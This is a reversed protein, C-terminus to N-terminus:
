ATGNTQAPEYTWEMVCHCRPDHTARYQGQKFSTFKLEPIAENAIRKFEGLTRVKGKMLAYMTNDLRRHAMDAYIPAVGIEPMVYEIVIIKAGPKLAPKLASYISRARGDSHNLFVQRFLYADATTPQPDFFSHAQFSIKDKPFNPNKGVVDNANDVVKPLDQVICTVTPETQVIANCVSGFSGGCDVLTKGKLQTWDYGAKIAGDGHASAQARMYGGFKKGEAPNTELYQYLPASRANSFGCLGENTDTGDKICVKGLNFSSEPLHDLMVEMGGAMLPDLHWIASNRSHTLEGNETEALFGSCVIANRALHKLRDEDLNIKKALDAYSVSGGQPINHPVKLQCLAQIVGTEASKIKDAM